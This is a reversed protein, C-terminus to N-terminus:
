KRRAFLPRARGFCFVLQALFGCVLITYCGDSGGVLRFLMARSRHRQRVFFFSRMLFFVGQKAFADVIMPVGDLTWVRWSWAGLLIAHSFFDSEGSPCFWPAGEHAPIIM